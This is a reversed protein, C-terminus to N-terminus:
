ETLHLRVSGHKQKKSHCHRTAKTPRGWNAGFARMMYEYDPLFSGYLKVVQELDPRPTIIEM